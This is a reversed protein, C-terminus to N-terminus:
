LNVIYYFLILRKIVASNINVYLYTPVFFGLYTFFHLIALFRKGGAYSGGAEQRTM